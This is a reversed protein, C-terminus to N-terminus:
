RPDLVLLRVKNKGWRVLRGLDALTIPAVELVVRDVKVQTRAARAEM